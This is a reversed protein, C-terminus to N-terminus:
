TYLKILKSDAYVIAMGVFSGYGLLKRRSSQLREVQGERDQERGSDSPKCKRSNM